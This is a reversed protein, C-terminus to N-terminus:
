RRPSTGEVILESGIVEIKTLEMRVEPYQSEINIWVRRGEIVPNLRRFKPKEMIERLRKTFWGGVLRSFPFGLVKQEVQFGLRNGPRLELDLAIEMLAGYRFTLRRPESWRWPSTKDSRDRVRLTEVELIDDLPPKPGDPDVVWKLYAEVRERSETTRFVVHDFCSRGGSLNRFELRPKEAPFADSM